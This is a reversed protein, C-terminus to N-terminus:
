TCIATRTWTASTAMPPGAARTTPRARRPRIRTTNSPAAASFYIVGPQGPPMEREGDESVIHVRVFEPRGVSGPHALWEESGLSTRGVLETGSYYEYLIPGWWRIMAQKVEVPM